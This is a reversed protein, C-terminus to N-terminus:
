ALPSCPRSDPQHPCHVAPLPPLDGGAAAKGLQTTLRNCAYEIAAQLQEASVLKDRNRQNVTYMLESLLEFPSLLHGEHVSEHWWHRPPVLQSPQSHHVPGMLDCNQWGNPGFPDLVRVRRLIRRIPQDLNEQQGNEGVSRARFFFSDPSMSSTIIIVRPAISQKNKYRASAPSAHHPDLLRLWDEFSMAGGRVDDMVIVQEGLYDDLANKAAAPYSDWGYSRQLCDALTSAILSKGAGSSGDFFFVSKTFEGEDLKKAESMNRREAAASLAANIANMAGPITAYTEYYDNNELIDHKLIEGRAAKAVILPLRERAGKKSKFAEGQAWSQRRAAEIACYDEGIVTVVDRADYHHKSADKAHILYALCNDPTHRGPKAKEIMQPQVGLAAAAGAPTLGTKRSKFGVLLHIHPAVFGGDVPSAIHDSATDRDHLIAYTYALEAGSAELRTKVVECFPRLDGNAASALTSKEGDSWGLFFAPDPQLASTFLTMKSEGSM